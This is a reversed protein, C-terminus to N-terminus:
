RRFISFCVASPATQKEKINTSSMYGNVLWSSNGEDEIRMYVDTYTFVPEETETMSSCNCLSLFLILLGLVIIALNRYSM